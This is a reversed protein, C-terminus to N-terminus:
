QGSVCAWLAGRRHTRFTNLLLEFCFSNKEGAVADLVIASFSRWFNLFVKEWSWWRFKERVVRRTRLSTHAIWVAFPGRDVAPLKALANFFTHSADADWRHAEGIRVNFKIILNIEFQKKFSQTFKFGSGRSFHDTSFIWHFETFSLSVRHFETSSLSVQKCENFDLSIQHDFTQM